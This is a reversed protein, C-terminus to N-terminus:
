TENPTQIGVDVAVDSASFEMSYNNTIMRMYHDYPPPLPQCCKTRKKQVLDKDEHSVVNEQLNVAVLPTSPTNVPTVGTGTAAIISPEAQQLLWEITRGNTKHGLDCSLQFIRAACSEKIRIRCQRGEVLKTHRGGRSSAKGNLVRNRSRSAITSLKTERAM